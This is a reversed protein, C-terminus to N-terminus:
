RLKQQGTINIEMVLLRGFRASVFDYFPVYVYDQLLTRQSICHVVCHPCRTPLSCLIIFRRLIGSQHLFLRLEVATNFTNSMSLHSHVNNTRWSSEYVVRHSPFTTRLTNRFKRVDYRMDVFPWWNAFQQPM